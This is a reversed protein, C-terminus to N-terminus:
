MAKLKRTKYNEITKKIVNELMKPDDFKLTIALIQAKEALTKHVDSQRVLRAMDKETTIIELGEVKALELMEKIEEDLFPHHDHFSRRHIIKAGTSEVSTYFKEPDAIGAFALYRKGKFLRANLVHIRANYIPKAARAAHRVVQTAGNEDGIVLLADTKRLQAGFSVRLPGAPMSFGNGIGRKSNVVVLNFDKYLSPNQFGDDMIIIDVGSKALLEAGENRKAAIVTIAHKTLILPEDGVDKSNHTEVDVLTAEVIGGGYGRSLFGPKKGMKKVAKALAIATPTKGAGGVIYNGICLVPLDVYHKPSRLMNQAAVFGYIFGLPATALGALSNKQWWFSPTDAMTVGIFKMLYISNQTLVLAQHM